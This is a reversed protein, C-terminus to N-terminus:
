PFIKKRHFGCPFLFAPLGCLNGIGGRPDAYSARDRSKIRAPNRYGAANRDVLLDFSDFLAEM